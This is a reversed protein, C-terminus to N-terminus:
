LIMSIAGGVALRIIIGQHTIFPSHFTPCLFISSALNLDLSFLPLGSSLLPMESQSFNFSLTSVNASDGVLYRAAALWSLFAGVPRGPSLLVHCHPHHQSAGARALTNWTLTPFLTPIQAFPSPTQSPGTAAGSLSSPLCTSPLPPGVLSSISAFTSSVPHDASVAKHNGM